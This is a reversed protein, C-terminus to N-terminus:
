QNERILYMAQEATLNHGEKKSVVQGKELAWFQVLSVGYSRMWDEFDNMSCLHINPTNYWKHPLSPTIPMRGSLSFALRVNWHAFNPFSVICKEGIKLMKQLVELPHNLTQLTEELIVYDFSKDHFNALTREIDGHYVPLGQEICRVVHESDIEVGQVHAHCEDFLKLMLEGNGCGLDLVTDGKKIVTEIVDDQWREAINGVDASLDDGNELSDTFYQKLRAFDSDTTQIGFKDLYTQLEKQLSCAAM